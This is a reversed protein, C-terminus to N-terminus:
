DSIIRRVGFVIFTHIIFLYNFLFHLVDVYKVLGSLIQQIGM